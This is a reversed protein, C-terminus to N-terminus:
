KKKKPKKVTPKKAAATKGTPKKTATSKAPKKVATTKLKSSTQPKKTQFKINPKQVLVEGSSKRIVKKVTQDRALIPLWQESYTIKTGDDFTAVVDFNPSMAGNEYRTIADNVANVNKVLKTTQKKKRGSM